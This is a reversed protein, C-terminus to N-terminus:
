GMGSSVCALGVWCEELEELLDEGRVERVRGGRGEARGGGRGRVEEGCEFDVGLRELHGRVAAEDGRGEAM